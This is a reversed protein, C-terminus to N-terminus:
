RANAEDRDFQYNTTDFGHFPIRGSKASPEKQAPFIVVRVNSEIHEAYQEPILIMGDRTVADFAISRMEFGGIANSDLV